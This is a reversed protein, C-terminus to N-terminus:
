FVLYTRAPPHWLSSPILLHARPLLAASPFRHSTPPLRPRSSSWVYPPPRPSSWICPSPTRHHPPPPPDVIPRRLLGIRSPPPPPGLSLPILLSTRSSLAVSPFRRSAPLPPRPSFSAPSTEAGVLRAPLGRRRGSM